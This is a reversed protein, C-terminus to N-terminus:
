AGGTASPATPRGREYWRGGARPELIATFQESRGIHHSRPWWKDHGAAFVAFVHDRPADIMISKRVAFRRVAVDM